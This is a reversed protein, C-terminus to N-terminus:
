IGRKQLCSSHWSKAVETAPKESRSPQKLTFVNKHTLVFEDALVAAKSVQTVKQENIYTAISDPLCNKFEELIVLDRLQEFEAVGLSVCRRDFLREKERAFEVFTQSDQKRFRRFKQRYAEPVLEYARLIAAKVTDFDSSQAVTLSAYVEQAKGILVCQLLLTWVDKPWRLSTAVREFHAFYKDVEKENFPPVMRVHKSTDFVSSFRSVGVGAKLAELEMEKLRLAKDAEVREAREKSELEFRKLAMESELQKEKLAFELELQKIRVAQDYQESSFSLGEEPIVKQETLVSVISSKIEAKVATKGVEISYHEAILLLDGKKCRDLREISPDAVFEGLDFEM